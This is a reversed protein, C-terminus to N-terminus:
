RDKFLVLFLLIDRRSNIEVFKEFQMLRDIMPFDDVKFGFQRIDGKEM